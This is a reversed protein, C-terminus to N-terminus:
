FETRFVGADGHSLDVVIGVWVCHLACPNTCEWGELGVHVALNELRLFACTSTAELCEELSGQCFSAAIAAIAAIASVSATVSAELVSSMAAVEGCVPVLGVM